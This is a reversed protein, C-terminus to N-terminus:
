ELAREFLPSALGYTLVLQTPLCPGQGTWLQGEFQGGQHCYSKPLVLVM